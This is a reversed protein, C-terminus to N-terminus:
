LSLFSVVQVKLPTTPICDFLTLFPIYFINEFFFYIFRRITQLKIM